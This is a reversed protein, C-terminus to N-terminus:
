PESVGKTAPSWAYRLAFFVVVLSGILWAFAWFQAPLFAAQQMLLADNHVGEAAAVRLHRFADWSNLCLNLGLFQTAFRLWDKDIMRPVFGFALLWIVASALGMLEGRLWLVSGVAMMVTMLTLAQRSHTLTKGAAILGAGVLMSGVYGASAILPLFGGATLTVGSGDDNVLMHDVQGGSVIAAWAHMQEHIHTNLLTFPYALLNLFPFNQVVIVLAAAGM